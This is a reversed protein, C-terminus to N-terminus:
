VNEAGTNGGNTTNEANAYGVLLYPVIVRKPCMLRFSITVDARWAVITVKLDM